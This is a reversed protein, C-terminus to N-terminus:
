VFLSGTRLSWMILETVSCRSFAGWGPGLDGGAQIGGEGAGPQQGLSVWLTWRSVELLKGEGVPLGLGKWLGWGRSRGADVVGARGPLSVSGSLFFNANRYM